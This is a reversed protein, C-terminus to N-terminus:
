IDDNSLDETCNHIGEAIWLLASVLAATKNWNTEGKLMLKSDPNCM